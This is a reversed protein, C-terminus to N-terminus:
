YPKQGVMNGAPNYRCVVIYGPIDKRKAVACGIEATTKWVMQTYHGYKYFDSDLSVPVNKYHKRENGFSMVAYELAIYANKDTSWVGPGGSLNEGYHSQPGAHVMNLGEEEALHMAWGESSKQVVDSWKVPPVGVEARYKNHLAVIKAKVDGNIPLLYSKNDKGSVMFPFVCAILIVLISKKMFM